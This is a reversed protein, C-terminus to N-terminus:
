IIRMQLNFSMSLIDSFPLPDWSLVPLHRVGSKCAADDSDGEVNDGDSNAFQDNDSDSVKRISYNSIEFDSVLM